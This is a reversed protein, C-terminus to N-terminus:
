DKTEMMRYIHNSNRKKKSSVTTWVLQDIAFRCVKKGAPNEEILGKIFRCTQLMRICAVADGLKGLINEVLAVSLIFLPFEELPMEEVNNENDGM